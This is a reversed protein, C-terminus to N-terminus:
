VDTVSMSAIPHHSGGDRLPSSSETSYSSHVAGTYVRLPQYRGLVMSRAWLSFIPMTGTQLRQSSLIQRTLIQSAM